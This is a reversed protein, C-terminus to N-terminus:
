NGCYHDLIYNASCNYTCCEHGITNPESQYRKPKMSLGDLNVERQDLLDEYSNWPESLDELERLVNDTYTRKVLSTTPENFFVCMIPMVKGVIGCWSYEIDPNCIQTRIREAIISRSYRHSNHSTRCVSFDRPLRASFISVCCSLLCLLLTFKMM